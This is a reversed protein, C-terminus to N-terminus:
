IIKDTCSLNILNKNLAIVGGLQQSLENSQINFTLVDHIWCLQNHIFQNGNAVAVTISYEGNSLKPMCFGYKLEIKEGKEFVGFAKDYIYNNITFIVNGFRDKITIGIGPSMVTERITLKIYFSVNEDGELISVPMVTKDNLFKIGTIVAELTGFFECNSTDIWYDDSQIQSDGGEKDINIVENIKKTELGYAMFSGYKKTVNESLGYDKIVGDNLWITKTCFNNVLGTDHTVFLVTKGADMFTRMKRLCKQQFKLDGVALAEDVILIDPDVMVAVSFALRVYMGSSYMRVKQNAFEGIDAFSLIDDLRTDMEKKTFGMLTGQFYVNEIGTLQPNFGAGLELLASVRGNVEVVGSTPTLVGTLIQLLTSKGSGNKGIIGLTEGKEVEFNLNNLAYFDKHYKKRLPHFAEFLRHKPYEYLKYIKTINEVKVAINNMIIFGKYIIVNYLM